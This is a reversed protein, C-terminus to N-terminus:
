NKQKILEIEKIWCKERDRIDRGHQKALDWWGNGPVFDEKHVVLATLLGRGAAEEEESIQGLMHHFRTDHADNFDILHWVLTLADSYSILPENSLARQQLHQTIIGKAEEWKQQDFGYTSQGPVCM